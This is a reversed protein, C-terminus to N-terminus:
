AAEKQEDDKWELDLKKYIEKRKRWLQSHSYPIKDEIEKIKLKEYFEYYVIEQEKPDLGKARCYTYLETETLGRLKNLLKSKKKTISSM